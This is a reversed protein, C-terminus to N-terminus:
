SRRYHCGDAVPMRFVIAKEHVSKAARIGSVRNAVVNITHKLNPTASRTLAPGGQIACGPIDPLLRSGCREDSSNGRECVNDAERKYQVISHSSEYITSLPPM